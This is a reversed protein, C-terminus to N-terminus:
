LIKPWCIGNENNNRISGKYTNVRKLVKSLTGQRWKTGKRTLINEKDLYEVIKTQIYGRQRLKFILKIIEAEAIDIEIFDKTRRYGYPLTGGMDGDLKKRQLMGERTREVITDRELQAIISLLGVFFNGTPTSTDLNEKCSVIKIGLSKFQDILNLILVSRRGLRDLSYFVVSDFLGEEADEILSKLGPRDKASLTGSVGADTYVKTLSWDKFKIMQRCKEDQIDLGFGDVQGWVSVRNYICAKIPKIM